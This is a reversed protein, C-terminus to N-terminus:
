VACWRRVPVLRAASLRRWGDRLWPAGGYHAPGIHIDAAVVHADSGIGELTLAGDTYQAQAPHVPICCPPLSVNPSKLAAYLLQLYLLPVQSAGCAQAASPVAWASGGLAKWTRPSRPRSDCVLGHKKQGPRLSVVVTKAGLASVFIQDDNLGTIPAPPGPIIHYRQIFPHTHTHTHPPPLRVKQVRCNHLYLFVSSM